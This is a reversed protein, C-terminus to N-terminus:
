LNTLTNYLALWKNNFLVGNSSENCIHKEIIVRELIQNKFQMVNLAIGKVKSCHIYKKAFLICYNMVDIIIDKNDNKIGCIIELTSFKIKINYAEDLLNRLMLWFQNLAPCNYIYHEITDVNNCELCKNDPEKGWLFLIDRCPIYRNLLQYQFSQLSTERAVSYPAKFIDKWNFSAYYYLEEWKYLATPRNAKSSM